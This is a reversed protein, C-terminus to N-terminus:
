GSADRPEVTVVLTNGDDVDRLELEAAEDLVVTTTDGSEMVGTDLTSRAVVRRPGTGTNRIEIVTGAPVVPHDRDVSPRSTGTAEIHFGADDVSVVLRPTFDVTAVTPEPSRDGACATFVSVLVVAIATLACKSVVPSDGMGDAGVPSM